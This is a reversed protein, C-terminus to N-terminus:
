QIEGGIRGSFALAFEREDSDAPLVASVKGEYLVAIRDCIRRLEELESSAIVITTGNKENLSVLINLILEKAGLDIGRTPESIFLIEPSVSLARAICVKQQNGGSLEEVNQYVSACKIDFKRVCEEVYATCVDKNLWSISKFPFPSLFSNRVQMATFIINELVSHKLLLGMKRRDEPIFYIGRLISNVIRSNDLNKGKVTVKGRTEYLGIIGNGVALKGHGSLGTIGMIENERVKLNLGELQEGPMSVTFDKFEVISNESCASNRRTAKIISQGLMDEAIKVTDFQNRRYCSVVEGDRLVTVSDCLETVEELRHSVFIIATGKRALNKLVNILKNSDEENLVATPEDLLLLNLHNKNIERAIEIFQKMNVSLDLVLMHPDLQVGLKDLAERADNLNKKRDVYSLNKGFMKETFSIVRERGLKINEAVTMGSILAFEQHIMGIGNKVADQTSLIPVQKGDIYISGKYGGTNKIVSNGFLINLLTSKGSGNAGVLGHIEGSDLNINVNKLVEIDSFNKTIERLWIFPM